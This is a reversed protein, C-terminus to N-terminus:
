SSGYMCQLRFLSVLTSYGRHGGQGPIKSWHSAQVYIRHEIFQRCRDATGQGPIKSWHPAQVCIRCQGLESDNAVYAL